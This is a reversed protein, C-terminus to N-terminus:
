PNVKCTRKTRQVNRINSM